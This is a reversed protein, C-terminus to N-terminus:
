SHLYNSIILMMNKSPIFEKAIAPSSIIEIKWCISFKRPV